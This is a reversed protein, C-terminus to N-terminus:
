RDSPVLGARIAYRVLGAVDHIGLRSMLQSRHTEVTKVSLTLDSAIQVNTRGEAILQLIERQRPTLGDSPSEASTRRLYDSVVHRSVAPSLYSGGAAVSRVALELEMATSDKLLYGVAGARLAQRVYEENDHMSLVIVRVNPRDVRLQAIAQIGNLGPMTIDMVVVDPSHTAIVALAERGDRAEGVVDVGTFGDLLARFGARVLAHDEALVVRVSGAVPMM